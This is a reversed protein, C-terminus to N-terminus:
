PPLIETKTTRGRSESNHFQNLVPLQEQDPGHIGALATSHEMEMNPEQNPFTLTRQHPNISVRHEEMFDNGIIIDSALTPLFYCEIVKSQTGMICPFRYCGMTQIRTGEALQVQNHEKPITKLLALTM